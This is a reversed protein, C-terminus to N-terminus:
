RAIDSLRKKLFSNENQSEQYKRGGMEARKLLTYMGYGKGHRIKGVTTLSFPTVCVNSMEDTCSRFIDNHM